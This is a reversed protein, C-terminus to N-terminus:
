AIERGENSLPAENTVRERDLDHQDRGERSLPAPQDREIGFSRGRPGRKSKKNHGKAM